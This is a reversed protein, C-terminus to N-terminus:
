KRRPKRKKLGRLYSEIEEPSLGKLREEAPLGELRQKPTLRKVLDQPSASDLAEKMLKRNLEAITTAMKEDEKRYKSILRNVIGTTHPSLTHYHRCAYEIQEPLVSFLKLM